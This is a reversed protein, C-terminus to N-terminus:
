KKRKERDRNTSCFCHRRYISLFFFPNKKKLKLFFFTGTCKLKARNEDSGLFCDSIGDCLKSIDYLQLVDTSENVQCGFYGDDLHLFFVESSRPRSVVAAASSTTLPGGITPNARGRNPSIPRTLNSPKVQQQPNNPQQRASPSTSKINAPVPNAV